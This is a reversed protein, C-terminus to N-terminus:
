VSFGTEVLHRYRGPQKALIQHSGSQVIEGKDLVLIRDAKAITSLRHAIVLVTRDEFLRDIAGDILQETVSDVSSTAEDLIVVPANLAFARAISVLQRQGASLNGGRDSVQFDYAGPLGNIFRAAHAQEAATRVAELTVDPNWLKVNEAVSGQFLFPDQQVVAISARVDRKALNRLEIGDLCVEGAYGDYQRLLLKSITTKGSGTAGVIAVVEGPKVEFQIKKLVQPGNPSYSFDVDKFSILGSGRRLRKPGDVTTTDTDLLGFVRELAAASRQIMAMRGSLERIPVFVKTLYDIFAVLLGLTVGTMELGIAYAGYALMIGVALASMGDMIAYLGADWWNAKRYTDLYDHAQSRFDKLAREQAGNMQVVQMGHIQEAFYGNLSSLAKRIRTYFVRLRKRFLNVVLVIVPSLAFSVLSLKWDLTLMVVFTGVIMLADAILGVAGWALSEYIAEVDNITRTMISGTTRKDFFGQGQGMVHKFITSRLGAITKLGAKQLTYMGFTKSVFGTLVLGVFISAALPLISLDNKTIGDDIAYKLLLPQGLEALTGLPIFILTTLVVRRRDVIHAWLRSILQWDSKEQKVM